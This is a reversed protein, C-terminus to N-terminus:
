TKETAMRIKEMCITSPFLERKWVYEYYLSECEDLTPKSGSYLFYRHPEGVIYHWADDVGGFLLRESQYGGGGIGGDILWWEGNHLWPFLTTTKKTLLAQGSFRRIM